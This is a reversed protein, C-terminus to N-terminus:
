PQLVMQVLQGGLADLLTGSRGHIGSLAAVDEFGSTGWSTDGADFYSTWEDPPACSPAFQLLPHSSGPDLETETDHVTITPRNCELRLGTIGNTSSGRVALAV